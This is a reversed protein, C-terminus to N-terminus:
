PILVPSHTMHYGFLPNIGQGQSLLVSRPAEVFPGRMLVLNDSSSLCAKEPEVYHSPPLIRMTPEYQGKQIDPRIEFSRFVLEYSSM